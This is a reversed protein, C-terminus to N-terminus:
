IKEIAIPIWSRMNIEVIGTGCYECYKEGLTKIPAGCNPCNLGLRKLDHDNSGLKDVDQVYAYTLKFKNQSRRDKSGAIINGKQDKKYFLSAVAAQFEIFYLGPKKSYKSLVVRHVHPDDYVVELGGAKDDEIIKEVMQGLRDPLKERDVRAAELSNMYGLIYTKASSRMEEIDLGPFDKKLMPIYINDMGSLSVPTNEERKITRAVEEGLEAMDNISRTVRRLGPLLARVLVFSVIAIIAIGIIWYEM